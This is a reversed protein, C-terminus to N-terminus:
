LSKMSYYDKKEAGNNPLIDEAETVTMPRSIVHGWKNVIRTKGNLTSEMFAHHPDVMKNSSFWKGM